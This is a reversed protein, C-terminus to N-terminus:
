QTSSFNALMNRVNVNTQCIQLCSGQEDVKLIMEIKEQFLKSNKKQYKGLQDTYAENGNDM